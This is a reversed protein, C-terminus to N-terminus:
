LPIKLSSLTISHERPVEKSTGLGEAPSVKLTLICPVNTWASPFELLMGENKHIILVQNSQVASAPTLEEFFVVKHEPTNYIVRKTEM